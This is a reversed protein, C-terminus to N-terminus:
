TSSFRSDLIAFIEDKCPPDQVRYTMAFIELTNKKKGKAKKQCKMIQRILQMVIERRKRLSFRGSQLHLEDCVVTLLQPDCLECVERKVKVKVKMKVKATVTVTM